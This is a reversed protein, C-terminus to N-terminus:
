KRKIKFLREILSMQDLVNKEDELDKQTEKLKMKLKRIFLEKEELDKRGSTLMKQNNEVQSKLQGIQFAAQEKYETLEKIMNNYDSKLDNIIDKLVSSEGDNSTVKKKRNSNKPMKEKGIFEDVDNMFITNERSEPESVEIDLFENAFDKIDAFDFVHITAGKSKITSSHLRNKQIHNLISPESIGLLSTVEELSLKQM